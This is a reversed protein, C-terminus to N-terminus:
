VRDKSYQRRLRFACSILMLAVVHTSVYKKHTCSMIMSHRCALSKSSIARSPLFHRVLSAHTALDSLLIFVRVDECLEDVSRGSRAAEEPLTIHLDEDKNPGLPGYHGYVPQASCSVWSYIKVLKGDDVKASSRITSVM